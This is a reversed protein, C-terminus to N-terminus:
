KSSIAYCEIFGKGVPKKLRHINGREDNEPNYEPEQQKVM